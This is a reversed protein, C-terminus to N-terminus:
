EGENKEETLGLFDRWFWLTNTIMDCCGWDRMQMSDEYSKEQETIIKKIHFKFDESVSSKILELLPGVDEDELQLKLKTGDHKSGYSFDISIEIPAPMEGLCKGSFDSYYVAEEKEAPNTIKKM